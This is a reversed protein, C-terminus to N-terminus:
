MYTVTVPTCTHIRCSPSSATLADGALSRWVAFRRLKKPKHICIIPEGCFSIPTCRWHRYLLSVSLCIREDNGLREQLRRRVWGEGDM